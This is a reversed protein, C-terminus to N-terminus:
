MSGTCGNAALYDFAAKAQVLGYGYANDRGSDGLDEATAQLATRIESNSCNPYHSWVLAAVGAVHPTAMSTGNFYAYDNAETEITASAGLQTLLASGDTDSIGVSPIHTEVGGHTGYLMGPVNNYIIAGVGGGAECNLVKEAFSINGRQILCIKGAASVCASEATGCDELAGTIVGTPTGAMAAAEVATGAVELTAAQGSGTPISSLVQVGPGALEVQNTQQSFGAINKDSDIAAVSVVSNYSAPYSHRTNGDNGAAAVSLIGRKNLNDFGRREFFNARDGGLSMNIVNAGNAACEEAAAILSSSYAWGDAGFVKVIHLNINSNPMVGVVGTDNNMAAITGAVHTGHSNQDEYWNGAGDPDSSGTVANGSLDEHGLDYGSDIICVTRNGAQLDSLQDAQVMPIGYPMEQSLPYRKLDEEIFAVNPNRRLAMLAKAPLHAAMANHNRIELARQGGNQQVLSRVAEGKGEKFTVIYRKDEASASIAFSFALAGSAFISLAKKM